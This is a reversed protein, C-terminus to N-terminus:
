HHKRWNYHNMDGMQHRSLMHVLMNHHIQERQKDTMISMAEIIRNTRATALEAKLSNNKENLALIANKDLNSDTMLMSMQKMNAFLQARKEANKIEYASKLSILKEMQEDTLRLKEPWPECEAPCNVRMEGEPIEAPSSQAQSASTSINFITLCTAIATLNFTWSKLCNM